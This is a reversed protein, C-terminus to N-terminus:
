TRFLKKTVGISGIPNRLLFAHNCLYFHSCLNYRPELRDDQSHIYFQLNVKLRKRINANNKRFMKKESFCGSSLPVVAILGNDPHLKMLRGHSEICPVMHNWVIIEHRKWAHFRMSDYPEM